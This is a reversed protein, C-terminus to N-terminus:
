VVQCKLADQLEQVPIIKIGSKEYPSKELSFRCSHCTSYIFRTGVNDGHDERGFEKIPLTKRCHLCVKTKQREKPNKTAEMVEPPYCEGNAIYCSLCPMQVMAGCCPCRVTMGTPKCFRHPDNKPLTPVRQSRHKGHILQGIATRNVGSQEAIERISLRGSQILLKAHELKEQDIM